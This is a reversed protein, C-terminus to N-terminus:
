GNSNGPKDGQNVVESLIPVVDRKCKHCHWATVLVDDANVDEGAQLGLSAACWFPTMFDYRGVACKCHPCVHTNAMLRTRESKQSTLAFVARALAEADEKTYMIEGIVVLDGFPKVETDAFCNNGSVCPIFTSM